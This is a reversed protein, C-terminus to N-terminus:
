VYNMHSNINRQKKRVSFVTKIYKTSCISDRNVLKVNQTKKWRKRVRNEM